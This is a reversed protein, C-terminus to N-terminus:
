KEIEKWYEEKTYEKGNLFYESTGNEWVIAPGDERHYKGDKFWFKRGTSSEIAPGDERHYQESENKYYKSPFIRGDDYFRHKVKVTM